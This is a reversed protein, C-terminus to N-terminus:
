NVAVYAVRECQLGSLSRLCWRSTESVTSTNENKRVCPKSQGTDKSSHRSKESLACLVFPVAIARQLIVFLLYYYKPSTKYRYAILTYFIAHSLLTCSLFQAQTVTLAWKSCHGIQEFDRDWHCCLCFVGSPGVCGWAVRFAVVSAVVASFHCFVCPLVVARLSM